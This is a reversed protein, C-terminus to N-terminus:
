PESMLVFTKQMAASSRSGNSNLGRMVPEVGAFAIFAVQLHYLWM